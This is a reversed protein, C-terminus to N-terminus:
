KNINTESFHIRRLAKPLPVGQLVGYSIMLEGTLYTSCRYYAYLVSQIVILTIRCLTQPLKIRPDDAIGFDESPSLEVNHAHFLENRAERCIHIHSFDIDRNKTLIEEICGRVNQDLLSLAATGLSKAEKWTSSNSEKLFRIIRETRGSGSAYVCLTDALKEFAIWAWMFRTIERLYAATLKSLAVDYEWAPRCMSSSDPNLASPTVAISEISGAIRLPEAVGEWFEEAAYHDREENKTGADITADLYLFRSIRLFHEALDVFRKDGTTDSPCETEKLGPTSYLM